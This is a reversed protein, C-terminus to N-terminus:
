RWSLRTCRKAQARRTPPPAPNRPHLPPPCPHSQRAACPHACPLLRRGAPWPEEGRAQVGQVRGARPLLGDAPVACLGRGGGGGGWGGKEPHSFEMEPMMISQLKVRGGRLNQLDPSRAHPPRAPPHACRQRVESMAPSRAVRRPRSARQVAGWRGGAGGLARRGRAGGAARRGGGVQYDMLLEAHHREEESEKKFFAAIGPLAVNDRSFYAYLSHYVYSM